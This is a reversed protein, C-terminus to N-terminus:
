SSGRYREYESGSFVDLFQMKFDDIMYLIDQFAINTEVLGSIDIQKGIYALKFHSDIANKNKMIQKKIAEIKRNLKGLKPIDWRLFFARAVYKLLYGMSEYEDYALRATVSAEILKDYDTPENVGSINRIISEIMLESIHIKNLAHIVLEEALRDNGLPEANIGRSFTSEYISSLTQEVECAEIEYSRTLYPKDKERRIERIYKEYDYGCREYQLHHTFEHILARYDFLFMIIAETKADYFGCVGVKKDQPIYVVGPRREVVFDNCLIWLYKELIEKEINM